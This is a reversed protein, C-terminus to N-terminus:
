RQKHAAVPQTHRGGGDRSGTGGSPQVASLGYLYEPALDLGNDWMLTDMGVRFQRFAAPNRLEAFIPRPDGFITETLDVVRESGDSFRVRVLYDGVYEADTVWIM